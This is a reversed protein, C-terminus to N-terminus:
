GAAVGTVGLILMLCGGAAVLAAIDRHGRSRLWNQLAGMFARTKQPAALYGILPVEAVTFAVLNFALLAQVQTVPAAHSALIAAMSGMYNASPLSAGMGSVAAVSLSDGRVFSRAREALPRRGTPAAGELLGVGGGGGVAADAPVPRVLKRLSAKTALVAAIVLAVLGSAIQVEPVNVHGVVPATRLIFLVVLGAGVGMAFGGGLFVLLQVLPRRRSLLLVVLGLRIPEFMVAGALVLVTIWM